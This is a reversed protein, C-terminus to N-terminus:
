LVDGGALLAARADALQDFEAVLVLLFVADARAAVLARAVRGQPTLRPPRDLILGVLGVLLRRRLTTVFGLSTAARLGHLPRPSGGRKTAGGGAQRGAGPRYLLGMFRSSVLSSPM